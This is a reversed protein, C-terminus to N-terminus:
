EPVAPEEELLFVMMIRKMPQQRGPIFRAASYIHNEVTRTSIGLERGIEPASLGSAVLECVEIERPTLHLRIGKTM